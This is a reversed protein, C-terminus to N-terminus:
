RADKHCYLSFLVVYARVKVKYSSERSCIYQGHGSKDFSSSLFQGHGKLLQSIKCERSSLWSRIHRAIECIGLVRAMQIPHHKRNEKNKLHAIWLYGGRSTRLELFGIVWRVTLITDEMVRLPIYGFSFMPTYCM